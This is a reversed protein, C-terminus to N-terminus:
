EIDFFLAFPYNIKTDSNINLYFVRTENPKLTIKRTIPNTNLNKLVIIDKSDQIEIHLNKQVDGIIYTKINVSIEFDELNSIQFFKISEFNFLNSKNLSATYYYDSIKNLNVIPKGLNEITFKREQKFEEVKTDIGAIKSDKQIYRPNFSLVLITTFGIIGSFITILVCNRIITSVM